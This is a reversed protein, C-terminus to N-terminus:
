HNEPYPKIDPIQGKAKKWNSFYYKVYESNFDSNM